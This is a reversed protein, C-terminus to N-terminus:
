KMWYLSVRFQLKNLAIKRFTAKFPIKSYEYFIHNDNDNVNSHVQSVVTKADARLIINNGIKTVTFACKIVHPSM